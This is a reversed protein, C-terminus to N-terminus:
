AQSSDGIFGGRQSPPIEKVVKKLARYMGRGSTPNNIVKNVTVTVTREEGNPDIFTFPVERNLDQHEVSLKDEERLKKVRRRLEKALKGRM